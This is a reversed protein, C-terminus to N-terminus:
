DQPFITALTYYKEKFMSTLAKNIDDLTIKEFTDIYDFIDYDEMIFSLFENAISGVSDFIGILEGYTSRLVQKFTEHSIGNKKTEQVYGTFRKFVEEPDDSEGHFEIFSFARTHDVYVSLPNRILGEEYLSLSLESSDGLLCEALTEMIVRKKLREAANQSIDIDKIGVAFIPKSVQMKRTFRPNLVENPEKGTSWVSEISTEPAKKLVKDCTEIVENIDINGCVCLAMNNLNYFTNYCKYLIEPTIQSISKVTGVIEKRVNNSRYMSKVMGQFLADHVNDEYMRIEQGIIGQEKAINEVTFYPSTVGGLLIELSKKFNETCSFLYMTHLFSTYANASAGTHAFKEFLDEGDESEFMKHELFHAIGDPVSIFDSDSATRFCNDVSGYRTGFIAYATTLDKPFIYVTLGSDHKFYYYKEGLKKNERVKLDNLTMKVIGKNMM